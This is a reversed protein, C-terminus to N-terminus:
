LLRYTKDDTYQVAVYMGNHPLHETHLQAGAQAEIPNGTQPSTFIYRLSISKNVVQPVAIIQGYVIQGRRRYRLERRVRKVIYGIFLVLAIFLGGTLVLQPNPPGFDLAVETRSFDEPLHLIGLMGIGGILTREKLTDFTERSIKQTGSFGSQGEPDDLRYSVYHDGSSEWVNVIEMPTVVGQTDLRIFDRWQQSLSLWAIFLAVTLVIVMVLWFLLTKLPILHPHEGRLVAEATPDVLFLDAKIERQM